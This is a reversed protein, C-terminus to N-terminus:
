SSDLYIIKKYNFHIIISTTIIICQIISDIILEMDVQSSHFQTTLWLRINFILHRYWSYLNLILHSEPDRALSRSCM